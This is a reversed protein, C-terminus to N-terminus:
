GSMRHECEPARNQFSATAGLPVSTPVEVM